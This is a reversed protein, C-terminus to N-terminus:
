NKEEHLRLLPGRAHVEAIKIEKELDPKDSMQFMICNTRLDFPNIKNVTNSEQPEDTPPLSAVPFSSFHSNPPKEM